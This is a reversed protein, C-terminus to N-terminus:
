GESSHDHLQHDVRNAVADRDEALGHIGRRPTSPARIGDAPRPTASSVRPSPLRRFPQNGGCRVFVDGERAGEGCHRCVDPPTTLPRRRDIERQRLAALIGWKARRLLNVLAQPPDAEIELDVGDGAENLSVEVGHSRALELTEEVTM